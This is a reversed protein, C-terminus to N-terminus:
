RPRYGWAAVTAQSMFRLRPDGCLDIVSDVEGATVLGSAALQDRLQILTLQLVRGGPQGGQWIGLRGASGISALGADALCAATRRGFYPDFAHQAALVTLHADVVRCFLDQTDQGLRPDPAVPLFDMDEVILCGGPKLAAAMQALGAHPDTLWALLLRAHVLDFAADPLPDTLIDHTRVDLNPHSLQSLVTTDIDTALVRGGPAVQRCLWAAVSGGGAGVELCRWGPRVGRAALLTFTEEDLLEALLQLRDAQGPRQNGFAYTTAPTDDAEPGTAGAAAAASGPAPAGAGTGAAAAARRAPTATSDTM